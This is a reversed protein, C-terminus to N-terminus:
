LRDDHVSQRERRRRDSQREIRTYNPSFDYQTSPFLKTTAKTGPNYSFLARPGVRSADNCTFYLIGNLPTLIYPALSIGSVVWGQLKVTSASTGQSMWQGQLPNGSNHGEVANFLVASNYYFLFLDGFESGPLHFPLDVTSNWQMSVLDCPIPGAM